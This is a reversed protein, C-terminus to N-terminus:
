SCFSFLGRSQAKRGRRSASHQPQQYHGLVAASLSEVEGLAFAAMARVDADSDKLLSVLPAVAGEDGIRGAALAARKRVAADRDALLARLEDDWRREDEAQTIKLLIPLPVQARAVVVSVLSVALGCLVIVLTRRM